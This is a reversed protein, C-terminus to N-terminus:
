STMLDLAALSREFDHLPVIWNLTLVGLVCANFYIVGACIQALNREGM